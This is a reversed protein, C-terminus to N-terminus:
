FLDFSQEISEVNTTRTCNVAYTTIGTHDHSSYQCVGVDPPSLAGHMGTVANQDLVMGFKTDTRDRCPPVNSVLAFDM